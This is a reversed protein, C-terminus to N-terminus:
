WWSELKWFKGFLRFGRCFRPLPTAVSFLHLRRTSVAFWRQQLICFEALPTVSNGKELGIPSAV